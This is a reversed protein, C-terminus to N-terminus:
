KEWFAQQKNFNRIAKDLMNIRLSLDKDNWDKALRISELHVALDSQKAMEDLLGHAVTVDNSQGLLEQV